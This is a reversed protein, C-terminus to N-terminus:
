TPRLHTIDGTSLTHTAGDDTTLVLRGEDTVDDARGELDGEPREIRVRRGLTSSADRYEALVGARGDAAALDGYRRDFSRLLAVLLDARDVAAGTLHNLAVLRAALDAPIETVPPWDVNLGLGVVVADDAREALIGALKREVGDVAVVLDNPWKLGPRLGTLQEVAEAAALGLAMTVLSSSGAPVDPRLLVSVLLSSGPPATWVRGLRGRGATQHDAVWVRGEPAGTRAVDVLLRNTSDVEADWAVPGFRTGALGETARRGLSEAGESTAGSGM